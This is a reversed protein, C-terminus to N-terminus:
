RATSTRTGSLLNTSSTPLMAQGANDTDKRDYNKFFDRLIRIIVICSQRGSVRAQFQYIINKILRTNVIM